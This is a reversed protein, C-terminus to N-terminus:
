RSTQSEFCDRLKQREQGENNFNEPALWAGIAEKVAPWEGDLMAFWATDRNKGKVIMHQRFIGEFTFGLRTAARRSKENLSNCKWEYRRVKLEDFAYQALLFISETAGRTRQLRPSFLVHGVEIVGHQLRINLLAVRGIARATANDIIAFFMPDDHEASERMAEDFAERAAFPGESMYQWLDANELGGTVEWLDDGHRDADLSELTVYRGALRLTTEADM